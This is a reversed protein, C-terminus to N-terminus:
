APTLCVPLHLRSLVARGKKWPSCARRGRGPAASPQPHRLLPALFGQRHGPKGASMCHSRLCIVGGSQAETKRLPQGKKCSPQILATTRLGSPADPCVLASQVFAGGVRVRLSRLGSTPTAQHPNWQARSPCGPTHRLATAWHATLVPSQPAMQTGGGCTQSGSDGTVWTYHSLSAHEARQTCQSLCLRTSLIM